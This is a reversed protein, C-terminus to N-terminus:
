NCPASAGEEKVQITELCYKFKVTPLVKTLMDAPNEDTRIKELLVENRSVVERIFHLRVDIHKSREHFIPNKALHLASQNDCHVTIIEDVNLLENVFGRLWIAEKVAETAAMYEAETSSLAVVKQLRSKWSIAGGLCTFVYGTTSKRTDVCGAYDSDVFGEVLNGGRDSKRYCLCVNMTGRIYKMLWKAAQWHVRKPNGMYRSLISLSYALDPRTCVMAYMLSGIVNAFPYDEIEDKEKEASDSQDCSELKFQSSLPTIVPKCDSMGYKGLVKELYKHQSLTMTRTKRNRSIDIGLIKSAKGMDKMEFEMKLKSKLGDVIKRSKGIILIDDVYLLLLVRTSWDNGGNTYACNDYMSRKYGISNMFLDFRKNWQRPAQKLGYLSKKLLCVKNEGKEFGTPQNMFIEEELEGHLFATTVDMQDLELDLNTVLALILRITTQKVVPAFIENYDVGERQTFGKAVLRAKYRPREMGSIGEKVKFVWKCGM